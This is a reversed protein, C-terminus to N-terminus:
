VIDGERVGREGAGSVEFYGLDDLALGMFM